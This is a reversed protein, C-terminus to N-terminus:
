LQPSFVVCTKQLKETVEKTASIVETLTEVAPVRGSSKLNAKPQKAGVASPLARETHSFLFVAVFLNKVFVVLGVLTM